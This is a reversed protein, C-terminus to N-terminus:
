GGIRFLIPELFGSPLVMGLFRSFILFSAVAMGLGLLFSFIPRQPKLIVLMVFAVILTSVIFKFIGLIFPYATICSLIGIIARYNKEGGAATDEMKGEISKNGFVHVLNFTTCFLLLGGILLPMFGPGLNHTTGMKLRFSSILYFLSFGFLAVATIKEKKQSKSEMKLGSGRCTEKILMTRRPYDMGTLSAGARYAM